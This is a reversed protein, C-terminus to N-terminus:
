PYIFPESLDARAKEDSAAAGLFDTVSLLSGFGLRDDVVVLHFFSNQEILRLCDKLTKGGKRHHARADYHRLDEDV